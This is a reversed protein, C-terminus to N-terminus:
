AEDHLIGALDLTFGPLVDGGSVQKPATLTEVDRGPRYVEVIKSRPDILWGLRVGQSLYGRMKERVKQLSDSPSRLEAVFDPVIRAFGDRDDPGLSDWRDRRIWSADPGLVSGDPLTFGASSDFAVGLKAAENWMTLRTTLLANQRGTNSSAPSMVVLTGDAQLELRLDGNLSCLRAFGEHDVRLCVDPSVRLAPLAKVPEAAEIDLPEREIVTTAM